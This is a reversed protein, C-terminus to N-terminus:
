KGEVFCAKYLDLLRDFSVAINHTVTHTQFLHWPLSGYSYILALTISHSWSLEKKVRM